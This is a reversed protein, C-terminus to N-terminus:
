GNNIKAEWDWPGDFKVETFYKLSQNLLRYQPLNSRSGYVYSSDKWDIDYHMVLPTAIGTSPYNVTAQVFTEYPYFHYGCQKHNGVVRVPTFLNEMTWWTMPRVGIPQFDSTNKPNWRFLAFVQLDSGSQMGSVMAQPFIRNGGATNQAILVFRHGEKCWKPRGITSRNNYQLVTAGLVWKGRVLKKLRKGPSRSDFACESPDRRDMMCGLDAPVWTAASEESPCIMNENAISTQGAWYGASHGHTNGRFSNIIFGGQLYDRTGPRGTQVRFEDNWGVVQADFVRDGFPTKHVVFVGQKNIGPPQEPCPIEYTVDLISNSWVLGVQKEYLLRKISSVTHATQVGRIEFQLPNNERVTREEPCGGSYSEASPCVAEPLVYRQLFKVYYLWEPRGNPTNNDREGLALCHMDNYNVSKCYEDYGYMYAWESFSLYQNRDLNGKDVGAKRYSAELAALTSFVWDDKSSHGLTSKVPTRGTEPVLFVTPLVAGEALQQAKLREGDERTDLSRHQPPIFALQAFSALAALVIFAEIATAALRLLSRHRHRPAGVPDQM